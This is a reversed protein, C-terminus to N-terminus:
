ATGRPGSRRSLPSHSSLQRVSAAFSPSSLFSVALVERVEEGEEEKDEWNRNVEWTLLDELSM